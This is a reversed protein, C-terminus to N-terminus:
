NMPELEELLQLLADVAAIKAVLGHVHSTSAACAASTAACSKKSQIAAVAGVKSHTTAAQQRAARRLYERSIGCRRCSSKSSWNDRAGCSTCHWSKDSGATGSVYNHRVSTEHRKGLRDPRPRNKQKNGM